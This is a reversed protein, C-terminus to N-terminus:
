GSSFGSPLVLDGTSTAIQYTSGTFRLTDVSSSAVVSDGTALFVILDFLYYDNGTSGDNETINFNYLTKTAGSNALNLTATNNESAEATSLNGFIRYFGPSSIITSSTNEVDFSTANGFSMAQNLNDPLTGGSDLESSFDVTPVIVGSALLDGGLGQGPQSPFSDRFKKQLSESVIVSAYNSPDAM